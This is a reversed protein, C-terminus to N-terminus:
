LTSLRRALMELLWLLVAALLLGTFYDLRRFSIHDM